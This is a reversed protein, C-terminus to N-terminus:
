TQPKSESEKEGPQAARAERPGEVPSLLWDWLQKYHISREPSPRIVLKVRLKNPKQAM